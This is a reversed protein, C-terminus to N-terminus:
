GIKSHFVVNFDCEPEISDLLVGLVKYRNVHPNCLVVVKETFGSADSDRCPIPVFLSHSDPTSCLLYCSGVGCKVREPYFHKLHNVRKVETALWIVDM